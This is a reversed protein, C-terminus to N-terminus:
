RGSREEACTRPHRAPDRDPLRCTPAQVSCGALAIGPIRTHSALRVTDREMGAKGESRDAAPPCRPLRSVLAVTLRRRLSAISHPVHREPRILPAAHSSVEPYRLHGAGSDPSAASRPSLCREAVPVGCAAICLSAQDNAVSLCVAIQCSDQRGRGCRRGPRCRLNRPLRCRGFRVREQLAASAARGGPPYRAVAFRQWGPELGHPETLGGATAPM